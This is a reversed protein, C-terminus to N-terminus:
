PLLAIAYGQEPTLDPSTMELLNFQSAVQFLTGANAADAHLAQVDAVVERVAIRNGAPVHPDRFHDARRVSPRAPTLRDSERGTLSVLQAPSVHAFHAFRDSPRSPHNPRLEIPDALALFHTTWSNPPWANTTIICAASTALRSLAAGM